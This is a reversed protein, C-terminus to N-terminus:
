LLFRILDEPSLVLSPLLAEVGDAITTEMTSLFDFGMVFTDQNNYWGVKYMALWARPVMGKTMGLAQDFYDVDPM